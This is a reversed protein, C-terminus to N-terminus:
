NIAEINEIAQLNIPFIVKRLSFFADLFLLSAKSEPVALRKEFIVLYALGNVNGNAIRMAHVPLLTDSGVIMRFLTDVGYSQMPDDHFQHRDQPYINLRFSWESTDAPLYQMRMRAGLVMREQVLGNVTDKM